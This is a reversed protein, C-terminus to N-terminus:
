PLQSSKPFVPPPEEPPWHVTMQSTAMDTVLQGFGVHPLIEVNFPRVTGPNLLGRAHGSSRGVVPFVIGSISSRAFEMAEPDAPRVFAASQLSSVNQTGDNSMGTAVDVTWSMSVKGTLVQALSVKRFGLAAAKSHFTGIALLCPADLDACQPAKSRCEQFIAQPMGYVDFGAFEDHGDPVGLRKEATAIQICTAEVYFREGNRTCRFDPGGCRGDLAENPVVDCGSHHLWRRVEAEWLAAEPDSVLLREWNAMYRTDFSQLWRRHEDALGVFYPFDVGFDAM